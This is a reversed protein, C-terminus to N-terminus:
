MQRVPRVEVLGGGEVLPCGAALEAAHAIDRAEVVTYGIVIDKSEAYPGDNVAGKKVVAGQPALPHGAIKLAGKADLDKMWAAWKKLREQMQQPSAQGRGDDRYLYVFESM